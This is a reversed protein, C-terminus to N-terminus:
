ANSSKWFILGLKRLLKSIVLTGGQLTILNLHMLLCKWSLVTATFLKNRRTWVITRWISDTIIAGSIKSQPKLLFHLKHKNLYLHNTMKLAKIVTESTMDWTKLILDKDLSSKLHICWTPRTYLCLDVGFMGVSAVQQSEETVSLIEQSSWQTKFLFLTYTRLALAWLLRNLRNDEHPLFTLLASTSM